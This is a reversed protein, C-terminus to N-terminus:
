PVAVNARSGHGLQNLSGGGWSRARGDPDVLVGHNEELALGACGADALGEQVRMRWACGSVPEVTIGFRKATLEVVAARAVRGMQPTVCEVVALTYAPVFRLVHRFAMYSINPMSSQLAVLGTKAAKAPRPENM